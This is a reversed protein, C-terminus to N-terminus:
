HKKKLLVIAEAGIGEGKGVLGKQETTTAKVNVQYHNIGLLSAMEKAMDLKYNKLNPKELYVITDLNVIEYSKKDLIKKVDELFYKSCIGKYKPDNDPYLKGIDGLALAGIISEAVAHILADGDSWGKLRKTFPIFVGGLNIGEGDVFPHFDFSHGILYQKDKELLFNIYDLDQKYTLKPMSHLAELHSINYDYNLLISIEDTFQPSDISSLIQNFTTQKYGQPTVIKYMKNRDINRIKNNENIRYTDICKEYYTVADYKELENLMLDIDEQNLIPRAADHILVQNTVYKLANKVSELRTLGGIIFEVKENDIIKRVEELDNNNVVLYIKECKTDKIFVKLSHNFLYDNAVKILTKNQSDNFRQGSGAMLLIAQYNNM